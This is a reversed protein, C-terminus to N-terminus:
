VKACLQQLAARAEAITAPMPAPFPGKLWDLISRLAQGVVDKSPRRAPALRTLVEANRPDARYEAWATVREAELFWELASIKDRTRHHM